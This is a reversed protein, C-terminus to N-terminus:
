GPRYPLSYTTPLIILSSQVQVEHKFGELTFRGAVTHVPRLTAQTPRQDGVNPRSPGDAVDIAVFLPRLEEYM